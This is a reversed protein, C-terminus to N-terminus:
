PSFVSRCQLVVGEVDGGAAINCVIRETHADGVTDFYRRPPARVKAVIAIAHKIVAQQNPDVERVDTVALANAGDSGISAHYLPIRDIVSISM